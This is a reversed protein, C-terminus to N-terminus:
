CTVDLWISSDDVVKLYSFIEEIDEMCCGVQYICTHDHDFALFWSLIIEFDHWFDFM